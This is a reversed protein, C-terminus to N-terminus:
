IWLNKPFKTAACDVAQSKITLLQQCFVYITYKSENKQFKYSGTSSDDSDSNEDDTDDRKEFDEQYWTIIQFSCEKSLDITM